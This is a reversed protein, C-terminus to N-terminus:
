LLHALAKEQRGALEAVLQMHGRCQFHTRTGPLLHQVPLFVRKSEKRQRTRVQDNGAHPRDAVETGIVTGCQQHRAAKDERAIDVADYLAQAAGYQREKYVGQYVGEYPFDLSFDGAMFREPLCQRLAEISEGSAVHVLWPQTNCNSPAHQAVRFVAELTTAAVPQPLFARLSHRRNVIADFVSAEDSM